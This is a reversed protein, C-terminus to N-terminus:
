TRKPVDRKEKFIKEARSPINYKPRRKRTCYNLVDALFEEDYLWNSISMAMPLSCGTIDFGATLDEWTINRLSQKEIAYLRKAWLWQKNEEDLFM